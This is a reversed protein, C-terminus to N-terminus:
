GGGPGGAMEIPKQRFMRKAVARGAWELCSCVLRGGAYAVCGGAFLLPLRAPWPWSRFRTNIEISGFDDLSLTESPLPLRPWALVLAIVAVVGLLQRVSVRFWRGQSRWDEVTTTVSLVMVIWVIVNACLALDDRPRGFAAAILASHTTSHLFPWGFHFSTGDSALITDPYDQVWAIAALVIATLLFTLWHLAHWRRPPVRQDAQLMPANQDFISLRRLVGGCRTQM